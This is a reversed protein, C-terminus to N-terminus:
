QIEYVSLTTANSIIYETSLDSLGILVMDMLTEKESGSSVTRNLCCDMFKDQKIRQKSSFIQGRWYAESLVVRRKIHIIM